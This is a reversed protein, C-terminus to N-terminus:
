WSTPRTSPSPIGSSPSTWTAWTGSFVIKRTVGEETLWLEACASGLLHGADTFRLRVGPCLDVMQGYECTTVLEMAHEADALTYLPEM